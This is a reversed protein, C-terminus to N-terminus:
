GSRSEETSTGTDSDEPRVDSGDPGSFPDLPLIFDGFLVYDAALEEETVLALTDSDESTASGAGRNAETPTM